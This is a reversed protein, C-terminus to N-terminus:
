QTKRWSDFKPGKRYATSGRDTGPVKEILQRAVLRGFVDKVIYDAHVHSIERATKNRISEHTELYELIAEEPSALSEHRMVVLVSNERETIVPEKLGIKTMAAFATNLGEGVDKNPADPFKNILRVIIGNRSFRESLINKVTIHAPLRGPSEIEIRNDFIRIHIDDALSYDRHLVANTIIEHLAEPPYQISELAEDGLKRAEEVIGITRAVAERIQAYAHGEVTVPDFALTERSGETESTTYRYVKIGCRKPLLAQPEEAFLITGAVTPSGEKILQQKALWNEPEATPVVQLMFEIVPTSNTIVSPDANVRETEFSALGKTYELQKLASPAVVKISQAGRRLYVSGDSAVKVDQSKRVQAQLVLGEAGDCQLFTYEFDTGLPFLEEFIQVHGNAAEVDAFGRWVRGAATEDIGIYLEGGDANAFAAISKTLRAPSIEIAKLDTFHGEQLDLILDRQEHTIKRVDVPMVLM